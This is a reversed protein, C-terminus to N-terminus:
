PGYKTCKGISELFKSPMLLAYFRILDCYIVVDISILINLDM